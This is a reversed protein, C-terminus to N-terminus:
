TLCFRCTTTAKSFRAYVDPLEKKLAKTDLRSTEVTNWTAKWDAGQLEPVGRDCMEMKLADAIATMEGELEDRMRRLERYEKVSAEMEATTM